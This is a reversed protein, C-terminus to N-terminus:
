ELVVEGTIANLVTTSHPLLDVQINKGNKLHITRQGGKATHITLVGNGCYLVDQADDYIHAGSQKFIYKWLVIHAM